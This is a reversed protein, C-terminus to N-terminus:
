KFIKTKNLFSNVVDKFSQYVDLKFIVSVGFYLLFFVIIKILGDVYMNFSLLNGVGLSCICAVTSVIVIPLLDKFQQLGSYGVHKSVLSANVFYVFFTGIVTGLLIGNIGWLALGGVVFCLAVFRKIITWKFLDKSKGIAAVAYYNIGQCCVAIGAFCLIQFYPVSPLWRESYLLVFVPKAILMLVLMIPFTVYALVGIFKRLMRIMYAKDNQAEALVPYSVQDIINSIFTSSLEETSKAKSYYGMTAPNYFKGILLGQINNCFTNILNSLLIFGGFSFLEKFSQKSFTLLPMWHGTIWYISTTLVSVMLQQAVLAWVGYGKWALYITVVLSLAAVSLDVSAIKKFKLQKRLQNTQVIRIANIILVVGQVRLVSCLLPLNYFRGIAPASFFLIAYLALALGFNWYFITSYDERTPRQKQILASGFGGDIFTSAVALFISLMGICGFDDPTLLRALVITSVFSLATSGFKQVASWAVGTVTKEKLNEAM